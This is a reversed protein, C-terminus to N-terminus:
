DLSKIGTGISGDQFTTAALSADTQNFNIVQIIRAGRTLQGVKTRTAQNSGDRISRDQDTTDDKTRDASRVGLNNESRNAWRERIALGGTGSGKISGTSSM